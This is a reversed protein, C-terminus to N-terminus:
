LKTMDMDVSVFYIISYDRKYTLGFCLIQVITSKIKQSTNIMIINIINHLFNEM